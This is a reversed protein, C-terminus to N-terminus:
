ELVGVSFIIPLLICVLKLEQLASVDHDVNAKRSAGTRLEGALDVESMETGELADPRPIPM